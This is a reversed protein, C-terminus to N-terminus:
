EINYNSFADHISNKEWHPINEKSNLKLTKFPKHKKGLILKKNIGKM